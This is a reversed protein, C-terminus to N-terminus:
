IKTIRQKLVFLSTQAAVDIYRATCATRPPQAHVYMCNRAALDRHVFKLGALYTMGLAIDIGYEM